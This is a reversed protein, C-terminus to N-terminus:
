GSMTGAFMTDSFVPHELSWYRLICDNARLQRSLSPHLMTRIWRWPTVQITQMKQLTNGWQKALVIPKMSPTRIIEILRVRIQVCEELATAFNDDYTTGIADYAMSHLIATSIFVLGREMIAPIIIHWPYDTMCKWRNIPELTTWRCHYSDKPSKWEPIRFHKPFCVDAYSTVGELQLLIILPHTTDPPDVLQIAHTTESPNDTLIKSVKSIQMCNLWCQM